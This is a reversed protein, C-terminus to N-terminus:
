QPSCQLMPIDIKYNKPNAEMYQAKQWLWGTPAEHAEAKGVTSRQMARQSRKKKKWRPIEIQLMPKATTITLSLQTIVFLINLHFEVKRQKELSLRATTFFHTCEKIMSLLSLKVYEM